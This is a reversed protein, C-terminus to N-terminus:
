ADEINMEKLCPRDSTQFEGLLSGQSALSGQLDTGVEGSQIVLTYQWVQSKGEKRGEVRGEGGRVGGRGEGRRKPLLQLARTPGGLPCKVFHACCVSGGGKKLWNHYHVSTVSGRRM